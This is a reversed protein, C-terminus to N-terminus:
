EPSHGHFECKEWNMEQSNFIIARTQETRKECGFILLEHSNLPLVLPFLMLNTQIQLVEWSGSDEGVKSIADNLREIPLLHDM